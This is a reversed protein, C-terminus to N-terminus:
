AEWLKEIEVANTAVEDLSDKPIGVQQLTVPAGIKKFWFELAEIGLDAGEANFVEKTFREFKTINKDKYWKMWAPIVVSLGAGHPVNYIASLAHEIM